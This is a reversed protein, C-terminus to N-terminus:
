TCTCSSRLEREAQLWDDLERGPTAGRALFIHYARVAVYEHSVQAAGPPQSKGFSGSGNKARARAQPANRTTSMKKAMM